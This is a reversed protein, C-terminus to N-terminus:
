ECSKVMRAKDKPKYGCYCCREHNGHDHLFLDLGRSWCHSLKEMM